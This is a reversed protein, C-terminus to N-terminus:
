VKLKDLKKVVAVGKDSIVYSNVYGDNTKLPHYEILGHKMLKTLKITLTRRSRVLKVLDNFRKPKDLATLLTLVYPQMALQLIDFKRREM